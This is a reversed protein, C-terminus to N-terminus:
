HVILKKTSVARLNSKVQLIYTGPIFASLDVPIIKKYKFHKNIRIRGRIDKVTLYGTARNELMIETSHSAPNPYLRIEKRHAKQSLEKTSTKLQLDDAELRMWYNSQIVFGVNTKHKLVSSFLLLDGNNMQYMQNLSLRHGEQELTLIRVINPKGDKDIKVFYVNESDRLQGVVMFGPEFRLKITQFWYFDKGDPIKMPIYAILKAHRDFIIQSAIQKNGVKKLTYLYILNDQVKELIPTENFEILHIIEYRSISQFDKNFFEITASRKSGDPSKWYQFTIISDGSMKLIQGNVVSPSNKPHLRKVITDKLIHGNKDINWSYNAFSLSDEEVDVRKRIYLYTSDSYPFLYTDFYNYGSIQRLLPLTATDKENAFTHRIINLNSTDMEWSSFFSKLWIISKDKPNRRFNLIELRNRTNIFAYVPVEHRDNNRLDYYRTSLADGTNLNIKEIFCGENDSFQREYVIFGSNGKVIIPKPNSIHNVGNLGSGLLTSDISLHIWKPSYGTFSLQYQQANVPLEILFFLHFILFRISTINPIYKMTMLM